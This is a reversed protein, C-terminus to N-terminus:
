GKSAQEESFPQVGQPALEFLEFSIPRRADAEIQRVKAILAERYRRDRRPLVILSERQPVCACLADSRLLAKSRVYLDPLRLCAAARAHSSFLLFNWEDGPNGIMKMSLVEEEAVWAAEFWRQLNELAIRHAEGAELGGAKLADPMLMSHVIGGAAEHDEFLMVRVGHGLPLTIEEQAPSILGPMLYPYLNNQNM